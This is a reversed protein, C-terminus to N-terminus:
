GRVVQALDAIGAELARGQDVLEDSAAAAEEAAAANAQTDQDVSTVAGALQDVALSQTAAASRLRALDQDVGAVAQATEIFAPLVVGRLAAELDRALDGAQTRTAAVAADSATILDATAAAEAASRQALNRVEDAVVAFGAGAEGARAAEVAANLALLNTQFAIDDITGVVTRTKHSRAGLEDLRSRLTTLRDLLTTATRETTDRGRGAAAAAAAANRSASAAQDSSAAAVSRTEGLTASIEELATAQRSAAEALSRSSQAIQAAAQATGLGVRALRDATGTLRRNVTRVMVLAATLGVTTITAGGALMVWLSTGAAQVAAAGTAQAASRIGDISADMGAMIAAFRRAQGESAIRMAADTDGQEILPLMQTNRVRVFEAWTASVGPIAAGMGALRDLGGSASASVTALRVAMVQRARASPEIVMGLLVTRAELMASRTESITAIRPLHVHSLETADQAMARILVVGAGIAM